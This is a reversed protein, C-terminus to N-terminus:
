DLLEIISNKNTDGERSIEKGFEDFVVSFLYSEDKFPITFLSKIIIIRM